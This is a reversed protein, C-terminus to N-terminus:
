MKFYTRWNKLQKFILSSFSHFIKFSLHKLDAWRHWRSLSLIDSRLMQKIKCRVNPCANVHVPTHVPWSSLDSHLGTICLPAWFLSLSPSLFASFVTSPLPNSCASNFSMCEIRDSFPSLFETNETPFLHISLQFSLHWVSMSFPNLSLCLHHRLTMTLYHMWPGFVCWLGKCHM